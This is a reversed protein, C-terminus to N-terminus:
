TCTIFLKGCIYHECMAFTLLEIFSALEKEHWHIRTDDGKHLDSPFKGTACAM